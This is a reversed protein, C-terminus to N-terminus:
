IMRTHKSIVNCEFTTAAAASLKERKLLRPGCETVRAECQTTSNEVYLGVSILYKCSLTNGLRLIPLLIQCM